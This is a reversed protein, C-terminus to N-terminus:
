AQKLEIARKIEVIDDKISQTDEGEDIEEKLDEEHHTLLSYLEGMTKESYKHHPTDGEAATLHLM